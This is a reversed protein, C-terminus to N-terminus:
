YSLFCSIIRTRNTATSVHSTPVEHFLKGKSCLSSLIQPKPMLLLGRAAHHPFLTLTLPTQPSPGVEGWGETSSSLSFNHYFSPSSAVSWAASLQLDSWFPQLGKVQEPINEVRTIGGHDSIFDYDISYTTIPRVVLQRIAARKRPLLSSLHSLFQEPALHLYFFFLSLLM